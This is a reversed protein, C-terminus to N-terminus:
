NCWKKAKEADEVLDHIETIIKDPAINAVEQVLERAEKCFQCEMEQTFVILRVPDKM